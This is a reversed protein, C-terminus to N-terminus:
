EAISIQNYKVVVDKVCFAMGIQLITKIGSQILDAQYYNTKIQSLAEDAASQLDESKAVSKFEIIVGLQTADKPILALDYRGFGSERNSHIRHTKQLSAILGLVFGHYFREPQHGTSDFYSMSTLLYQQLEQSFKDINGNTLDDIWHQYRHYGMSEIFWTMMVDEFLFHVEQNPIKLNVLRVLGRVESVTGTLYGSYLLLSLLATENDEINEFHLHLQIAEKVTRGQLLLEMTKKLDRNSRALIQKILLNDSTNVWYPQLKGSEKLCKIISWPNYITAEGIQYGNYWQKISPGQPILKTQALLHNTEAETFGFYESYRNNLTTYVEANNLDSFLNEKAIRIIGTIVAKFINPNDKLGAGFLARIFGIIDEYYQHTYGSLIPTDYEDILIIVPKQYTKRLYLSLNLLAAELDSRTATKHMIRAYSEIEADSLHGESLIASNEIFLRSFLETIKELSLDFDTAKIDKFSIFIVSFQGQYKQLYEPSMSALLSRNFLTATELGGVEASFFHQLMSMFLTKGFRRPRNIVVVEGDHVLDKISLSKDVYIYNGVILKRYDSVGVPFDLQIMM